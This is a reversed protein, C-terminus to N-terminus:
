VSLSKGMWRVEPHEELTSFGLHEYFQIANPNDTGVGLHVGTVGRAALDTCLLEILTRGFGHGQTRPLLDIHLQAPYDAVVTDPSRPPQHLLGVMEADVPLAGTLPYQERLAPWWNQECWAEFERTDECGLVYGSVGLEDAVIHAVTRPGIVYPGAYVHGLLDPNQDAAPGGTEHCVRYVGPLDQLAAARIVSM